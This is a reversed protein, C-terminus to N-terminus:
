NKHRDFYNKTNIMSEYMDVYKKQAKENIINKHLLEIQLSLNKLDRALLKLAQNTYNMFDESLLERINLVIFKQYVQVSPYFLNLIFFGENLIIFPWQSTFNSIEQPLTVKKLSELLHDM